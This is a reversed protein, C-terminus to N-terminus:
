RHARQGPLEGLFDMADDVREDVQAHQDLRRQIKGLFLDVKRARARSAAGRLMRLRELTHRVRACPARQAAPESTTSTPAGLTPLDLRSLWSAPSSARDDGYRRCWGRRGALRDLDLTDRECMM